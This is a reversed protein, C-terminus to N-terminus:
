EAHHWKNKMAPELNGYFYVLRADAQTKIFLPMDIAITSRALGFISAPFTYLILM